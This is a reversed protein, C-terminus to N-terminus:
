RLAQHTSCIVCRLIQRPQDLMPIAYDNLSHSTQFQVQMPGMLLRLVLRYHCHVHARLGKSGTALEGPPPTRLPPSPREAKQTTTAPAPEILVHPLAHPLM